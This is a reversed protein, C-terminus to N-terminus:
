LIFYYFYFAFGMTFTLIWAAFTFRMTRRINRRLSKPLKRKVNLINFIAASGALTGLGAHLLTVQVGPTYFESTVVDFNGILSLLMWAFFSLAGLLIGSAMIWQHATYRERRALFFGTVIIGLIFVQLLLNVLSIPHIPIHGM